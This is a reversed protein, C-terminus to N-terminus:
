ENGKLEIKWPEFWDWFANLQRRLRQDISWEISRVDYLSLSMDVWWKKWNLNLISYPFGYAGYPDWSLNIFLIQLLVCISLPSYFYWCM